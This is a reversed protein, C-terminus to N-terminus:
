VENTEINEPESKLIYEFEEIAKDIDNNQIYLQGLGFRALNYEPWLRSVIRYYYKFAMDYNNLLHHARAMNYCSEAKIKNVKSNHYATFALSQTKDTDRKFFFHNGLLNLVMANNPDSAYARRLYNKVANQLLAEDKSNLDMVALAVLASVNNPDLELVRDFCQRARTLHGLQYHCLGLGLRIDAPGNPCLRLCQEYISCADKFLGRNYKICARGLLAPISGKNATLVYDFQFEAKDLDGQSLYLVGKSIYTLPNDVDLQEAENILKSITSSLEERKKEYEDNTTEIEDSGVNIKNYKEIYYGILTNLAKIRGETLKTQDYIQELSEDSIEKLLNEFEEIKNVQYYAAAVNVWVDLNVREDKLLDLVGEYEDNLLDVAVIGEETPIDFSAQQNQM